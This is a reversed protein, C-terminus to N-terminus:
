ASSLADPGESVGVGAVPGEGGPPATAESLPLPTSRRGEKPELPPGGGALRARWDSAGPAAGM